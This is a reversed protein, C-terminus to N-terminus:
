DELNTHREGRLMKMEDLKPEAATLEAMGRDLEREFQHCMEKVKERLDVMITHM